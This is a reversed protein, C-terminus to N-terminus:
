RVSEGRRCAATVVIPMTVLIGNRASDSGRIGSRSSSSSGSSSYSSSSSSSSYSSSSSSSSRGEAVAMAVTMGVDAAATLVASIILGLEAGSCSSFSRSVLAAKAPKALIGPLRRWHTM